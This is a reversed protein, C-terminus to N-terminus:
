RVHRKRKDYDERCDVDCFLKGQLPEECNYCSGKLTLTEKELQNRRNKILVDIELQVIKNAADVVDRGM